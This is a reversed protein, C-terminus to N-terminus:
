RGKEKLNQLRRRKPCDTARGVVDCGLYQEVGLIAVAKLHVNPGDTHDEVSEQDALRRELGIVLFDLGDILSNQPSTRDSVRKSV